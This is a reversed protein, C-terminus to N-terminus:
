MVEQFVVLYGDKVNESVKTFVLLFMHNVGLKYVIQYFDM